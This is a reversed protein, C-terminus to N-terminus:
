RREIRGSHRMAGPVVRLQAVAESQAERRAIRDLHSIFERFVRLHDAPRAAGSNREPSLTRMVDHLTEMM